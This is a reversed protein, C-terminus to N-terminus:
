LMCYFGSIKFPKRYLDSLFIYTILFMITARAFDVARKRRVVTLGALGRGAGQLFALLGREAGQLSALWSKEQVSIPPWCAERICTLPVTFDTAVFGRLFVKHILRM